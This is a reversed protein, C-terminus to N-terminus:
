KWLINRISGDESLGGHIMGGDNGDQVTCDNELPDEWMYVRCGGLGNGQNFNRLPKGNDQM